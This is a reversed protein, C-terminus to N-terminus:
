SKNIYQKIEAICTNVMDDYYGSNKIFDEKDTYSCGGLYETYELLDKYRVTVSVHCWAWINGNELEHEIWNETAKDTEEDVASCNGKYDVDSDYNCDITIICDSPKINMTLERKIRNISIYDTIITSAEAM